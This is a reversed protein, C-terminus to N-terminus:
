FGKNDLEYNIITIAQSTFYTKPGLSLREINKKLFKKTKTDFGEHDGLVFVGNELEKDKTDKIHKGSENLFFINKNLSQMEEIITKIDKDDVFVGNHVQVTKGQKCRRLCMEILKKLDKKSITNDKHYEIIIHKPSKPPGMLILHLQVDQRFTNSAFLSSIISHLLIDIRGCAKLDKIIPSTHADKSYVIFTRM